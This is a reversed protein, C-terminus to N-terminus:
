ESFNFIASDILHGPKLNKEQERSNFSSVLYVHHIPQGFSSASLNLVHEFLGLRFWGCRLQSFMYEWDVIIFLNLSTWSSLAEKVSPFTLAEWCCLWPIPDSHNILCHCSLCILIVWSFPRVDSSWNWSCSLNMTCSMFLLLHIWWPSTVSKLCASSLLMWDYLIEFASPVFYMRLLLYM